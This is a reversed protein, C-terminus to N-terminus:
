GEGPEHEDFARTVDDLWQRTEETRRFSWPVRLVAGLRCADHMPAFGRRGEEVEARTFATDREHPFRKSLKATFRFELSEARSGGLTARRGIWPGSNVEVVDM